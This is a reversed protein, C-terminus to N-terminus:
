WWVQTTVPCCAPDATNSITYMCSDGACLSQLTSCVNNLSFCFESNNATAQDFGLRIKAISYFATGRDYTNFSAFVTNGNVTTNQFTNICVPDTPPPHAFPGHPHPPPM